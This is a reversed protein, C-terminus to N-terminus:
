KSDPQLIKSLGKWAAKRAEHYEEANKSEGTTWYNELCKAQVRLLVTATKIQEIAALDEGELDLKAVLDLQSTVQDMIEHISHLTDEAEKPSYADSEVGDALLGINLYSQFLHAASLNGMAELLRDRQSDRKVNGAQPVTVKKPLTPPTISVLSPKLKPQTIEPISTNREFVTMPDAASPALPPTARATKILIGVSTIGLVSVSIVTAILWYSRRRWRECQAAIEEPARFPAAQPYKKKATATM